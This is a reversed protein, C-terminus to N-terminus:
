AAEQKKWDEVIRALGIVEWNKFKFEGFYRYVTMASMGRETMYDIFKWRGPVMNWFEDLKGSYDPMYDRICNEIGMWEWRKVKSSRLKNYMTSFPIGYHEKMYRSLYVFKCRELSLEKYPSLGM